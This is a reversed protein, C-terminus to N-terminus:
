KRGPPKSAPPKAVPPPPIAKEKSPAYDLKCHLVNGQIVGAGEYRRVSTAESKADVAVWYHPRDDESELKESVKMRVHQWVEGDHEERGAEEFEPQMRDTILPGHTLNYMLRDESSTSKWTKGGDKTLWGKDKIVIQRVPPDDGGSVTLDFDRGSLLGQVKITEPGAITGQVEWVGAAMKKQATVLWIDAPNEAPVAAPNGPPPLVGKDDTPSAYRVDVTTYDGEFGAPGHYRRVGTTAGDKMILWANPRDGQYAVKQDAIFRVHMLPEGGEEAVAVKEFPPIKEDARFHIPTHVLYYFRRDVAKAPKWTKGGDSSSWAKEGVAIQRTQGKPDKITLDFDQGAILGAVKFSKEGTVLAEVKWPNPSSLKKAAALLAEPKDEAFAHLALACSVVALLFRKM